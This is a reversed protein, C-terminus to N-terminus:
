INVVLMPPISNVSNGLYWGGLKLKKLQTSWEPFPNVVTSFFFHMQICGSQLCSTSVLMEAFLIIYIFAFSVILVIHVIKFQYSSAEEKSNNRSAIIYM